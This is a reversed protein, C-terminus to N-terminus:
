RKPVRQRYQAFRSPKRGYEDTLREIAYQWGNTREYILERVNAIIALAGPSDARPRPQDARVLPGRGLRGRWRVPSWLAALYRLWTIVTEPLDGPEALDLAPRDITLEVPAGEAPIARVITCDASRDSYWEFRVPRVGCARAAEGLLQSFDRKDFTFISHAPVLIHRSM